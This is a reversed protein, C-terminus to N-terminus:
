QKLVSRYSIEESELLDELSINADNYCILDEQCWISFVGEPVTFHSGLFSPLMQLLVEVCGADYRYSVLNETSTRYFGDAPDAFLHIFYNERGRYNSDSNATPYDKLYVMSIPGKYEMVGAPYVLNDIRDFINFRFRVGSMLNRTFGDASVLYGNTLGKDIMTEALYDIVFANTMYAFDIFTKEMHTADAYELYAPDVRLRIRNEGLLELEVMEPNMAFETITKLQAAVDPNLAPDLEDVYEDSTNYIIQYYHAYVPGLYLYRTDTLKSFANYLVPDVTIEQNPHGNIYHINHVGDIEEDPTFLQYGKICAEAYATQLQKSVATAEAGSGSFNYQFVFNESCNRQQAQCVVSQWGRDQKLASTIGVTIGIVGIVFLAIAAIWRLKTNKESIEVRNVPRQDKM